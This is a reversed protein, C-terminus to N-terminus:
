GVAVEERGLCADLLAFVRYRIMDTDGSRALQEIQDLEESGVGADAALPDVRFVRNSQSRVVREYDDFLAEKMKEGPRLGTFEIAVDRGSEAILGRAMDLISVPEGMEMFYVGSPDQSGTVSVILGVAEEPSMFYREMDAHTIQLPGGAAIQAKFRPLVSGQSGLVNGFRISKLVMNPARTRGYSLLHLESLRKTAGMVCVPAAAKDSSILTFHSAGSAHAALLANRTGILNTLVCEGAHREGMHVHKLAAAHVVIDPQLRKFQRTLRVSDRVDTLVEVVDLEPNLRSANEAVEILGHDFQDVLALQACDLKAFHAALASGISGGAGTVVVRKGSYFSAPRSGAEHRLPDVADAL